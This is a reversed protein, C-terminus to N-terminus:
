KFIGNFDIDEAACAFVTQPLPEMGKRLSAVYAAYADASEGELPQRIGMFVLSASSSIKCIQRSNGSADGPRVVIEASIRIDEILAKMRLRVEDLKEGSETLHCLRLQPM